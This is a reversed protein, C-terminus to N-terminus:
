LVFKIGSYIFFTSTRISNIADNNGLNNLGGYEYKFGLLVGLLKQFMYAGQLNGTLGFDFNKVKYIPSDDQSLL